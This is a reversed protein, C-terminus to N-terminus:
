RSSMIFIRRGGELEGTILRLVGNRRKPLTTNCIMIMHIVTCSEYITTVHGRNRLGACNCCGVPTPVSRRACPQSASNNFIFSASLRVFHDNKTRYYRTLRRITAVGITSTRTRRARYCSPISLTSAGVMISPRMRRFLGGITRHGYVSAHVFHCSNSRPYVSSRLSYNAARCSLGHSLSSLVHENAFNGTNVM